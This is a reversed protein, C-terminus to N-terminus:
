EGMSRVTLGLRAVSVSGHSLLPAIVADAVRLPYALGAVGCLAYLAIRCTVVFTKPVRWGYPQRAVLLHM